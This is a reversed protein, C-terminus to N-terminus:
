KKLFCPKLVINEAAVPVIGLKEALGEGYLFSFTEYPSHDNLKKRRYSNIHSTNFQFLLM